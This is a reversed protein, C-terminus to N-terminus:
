MLTLICLNLYVETSKWLCKPVFYLKILWLSLLISNPFHLRAVLLILVLKLEHSIPFCLTLGVKFSIPLFNCSMLWTPIHPEVSRYPTLRMISGNLSILVM